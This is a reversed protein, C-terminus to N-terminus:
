KTAKKTKREIMPVGWYAFFAWPIHGLSPRTMKTPGGMTASM